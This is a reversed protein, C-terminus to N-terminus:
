KEVGLFDLPTNQTAALEIKLQQDLDSVSQPGALEILTNRHSRLEADLKRIERETSRRQIGAIVEAGESMSDQADLTDKKTEVLENTALTREVLVRKYAHYRQRLREAVEDIMMFLIIAETQSLQIQAHNKQMKGELVSGLVRGGVQSGYYAGSNNTFAQLAYFPLFIAAGLTKSLLSNAQQPSNAPALKQIVFQITKNREITAKWLNSLQEQENRSFFEDIAKQEDGTLALSPQIFNLGEEEAKQLEARKTELVNLSKQSADQQPELKITEGRSREEKKEKIEEIVKEDITELNILAPVYQSFSIGVKLPENIKGFIPSSPKSIKNLENLKTEEDKSLRALSSDQLFFLMLVALIMGKNVNNNIYNMPLVTKLSKAKNRLYVILNLITSVYGPTVNKRLFYPKIILVNYRLLLYFM